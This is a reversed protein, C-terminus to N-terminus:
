KRRGFVYIIDIESAISSIASTRWCSAFILERGIQLSTGLLYHPGVMASHEKGFICAKLLNEGRSCLPGWVSVGNWRPLCYHFFSWIHFQAKLSQNQGVVLFLEEGDKESVIFRQNKLGWCFQRILCIGSQGEIQWVLIWCALALKGATHLNLPISHFLHCRWKFWM